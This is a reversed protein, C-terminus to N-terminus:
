DRNDLHNRGFREYIPTKTKNIEQRFFKNRIGREEILDVRRDFLKELAEKLEFYLDTYKYPDSENFDVLLDVDSSDGFDERTASGFAYLSKVENLRCLKELEDTLQKNLFMSFSIEAIGPKSITLWVLADNRFKRYHFPLFYGSDGAVFVQQACQRAIRRRQLPPNR